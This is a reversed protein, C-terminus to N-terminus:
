SNISRQFVAELADLTKRWSFHTLRETGKQQLSQIQAPDNLTQAILTGLANANTPDFTIAANDAVEPLCSNNSVLVPVKHAFAELIPIGFGENISPFVYLAAHKYLIATESDSLYGTFVVREKLQSSAAVMEFIADDQLTPKNSKQGVIVLYIEQPNNQLLLEFATILTALNKRKEITGVHLIYKKNLLHEYNNTATSLQPEAISSKPGIHIPIIKAADIGSHKAIQQKAYNTVTVIASSKKAASVGITNFLGLWFKNYHTPYEWFFADHFVPVTTYGLHMYPVFYDTCFILNCGKQWAKIPLTIQKWILYNLQEWLKGIKNTGTYIPLCTDIFVYDFQLDARSNQITKCLESLYTHAGTKAIKLDRTDIGIIRKKQQM